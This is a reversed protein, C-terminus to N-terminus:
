SSCIQLLYCLSAKDTMCILCLWLLLSNLLAHNRCLCRGHGCPAAAALQEKLHM